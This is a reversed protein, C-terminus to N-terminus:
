DEKKNEYIRLRDELEKQRIALTLDSRTKELVGRVMDTTRRLGGTIADPFDITILINYIDNMSTLLEEGKSLDGKRMNDLLYRRLEGGAEALGHLFAVFDVQLEEPEPVQKGNVLALTICGEAYEKQADKIFGTRIGENLDTLAEEVQDLFGRASALMTEAKEMEHRHIARIANSSYRITERCLPLVKERAADKAAFNKRIRDAISDLNGTLKDV